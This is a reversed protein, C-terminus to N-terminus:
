SSTQSTEFFKPSNLFSGAPTPAFVCWITSSSIKSFTTAMSVSPNQSSCHFISLSGNQCIDGSERIRKSHINVVEFYKLPSIIPVNKRWLSLWATNPARWPPPPITWKREAHYSYKNLYKITSAICPFTNKDTPHLGCILYVVTNAFKVVFQAFLIYRHLIWPATM